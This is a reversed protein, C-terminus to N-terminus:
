FYYLVHQKATENPTESNRPKAIDRYVRAFLVQEETHSHVDGYM